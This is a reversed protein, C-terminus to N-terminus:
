EESKETTGRGPSFEYHNESLKATILDEMRAAIVGLFNNGFRLEQRDIIMNRTFPFFM